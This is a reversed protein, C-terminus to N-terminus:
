VRFWSNNYFDNFGVVAGNFRRFLVCIKLKLRSHIFIGGPEGLHVVQLAYEFNHGVQFTNETISHINGCVAQRHYRKPFCVDIIRAIRSSSCSGAPKCM